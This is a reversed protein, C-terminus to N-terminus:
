QLGLEQRVEGTVRDLQLEVSLGGGPQAGAEDLRHIARVVDYSGDASVGGPELRYDGPAWGKSRTLYAAVSDPGPHGAIDLQVLGTEDSAMWSPSWGDVPYFWQEYRWAMDLRQGSPKRWALRFYLNRRWSSARGTMFNTVFFTPWSILSQSRTFVIDDGPDATFPIDPWGNTATPGIRTGLPFDKDQIHLMLRGGDDATARFEVPQDHTDMTWNPHDGIALGSPSYVLPGNPLAEPRTTAFRDVLLVVQRGAFLWIGALGLIALASLILAFRM